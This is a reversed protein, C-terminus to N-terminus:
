RSKLNFFLFIFIISTSIVYVIATSLAIGSVGILKMFLYNFVINMPLSIIAINRLVTNKAMASILRVGLIGLLYFPLQLVYYAQTKAVLITDQATFAGREFLLKIIPESFIFLLITVPLSILVILKSYTQLTHKLGAWEENAVLRSFHPLVATGLAMAGIGLIMAVVKNAYNLTAVSGSDLMAAMSQDVLVTSSMLFAGALMPTYQGMVTKLEETMGHWRPLISIGSRRASQTLMLLEIVAGILVGFVLSYIGWADVFTILCIVIVIPTISPILAVSAFREGANIITSYLHSIGTIIVIPLLWYFLSSVLAMTQQNFGTGLISLVTPGILGLIIASVLLLLIGVVILSSFLKAAAESGNKDRVRIYTPMIASGFSGALVNIVFSPLLFAFLFADVMSGTGFSHAVVLEKGAGIFKAVLTFIAVVLMGSFIRRNTSLEQWRNWRILQKKIM